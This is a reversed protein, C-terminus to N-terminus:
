ALTKSEFDPKIKLVMYDITFQLLPLHPATSGPFAFVKNSSENETQM